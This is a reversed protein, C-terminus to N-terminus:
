QSAAKCQNLDEREDCYYIVAHGLLGPNEVGQVRYCRAKKEGTLQVQLFDSEQALVDPRDQVIKCSVPTGRQRWATMEKPDAAVMFGLLAGVEKPTSKCPRGSATEGPKSRLIKYTRFGQGPRLMARFM